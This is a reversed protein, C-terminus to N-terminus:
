DGQVIVKRIELYDDRDGASCVYTGNWRGVALTRDPVYLYRLVVEKSHGNSGKIQFPRNQKPSGKSLIKIIDSGNMYFWNVNHKNEVNLIYRSIRCQIRIAKFRKTLGSRPFPDYCGIASNRYVAIADTPLSRNFIEENIQLVKWTFVGKNHNV